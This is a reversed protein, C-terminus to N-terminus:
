NNGYSFIKQSNTLLNSILDDNVKLENWVGKFEYNVTIRIEQKSIIFVLTLLFPDINKNIVIRNKNFEGPPNPISRVWEAFVNNDSTQITFGFNIGLAKVPTHPLTCTLRRLIQTIILITEASIEKEDIRIEIEKEKPSFHINRFDYRIDKEQFEFAVGLQEKETQKEPDVGLLNIAIWDPTFIYTNWFGIVRINIWKPLFTDVM